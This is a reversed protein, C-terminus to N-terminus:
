GKYMQNLKRQDSRKTLSYLSEEDISFMKKM